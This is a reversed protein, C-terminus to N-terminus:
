KTYHNSINNPTAVPHKDAKSDLRSHNTYMKAVSHNKIATCAILLVIKSRKKWEDIVFKFELRLSHKGERGPVSLRKHEFFLDNSIDNNM